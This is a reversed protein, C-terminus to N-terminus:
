NRINNIHHNWTLDNTITVGLYKAKNTSKLVQNHLTYQKSWLCIFLYVSFKGFCYAQNCHVVPQLKYVLFDTCNKVQINLNSTSSDCISTSLVGYPVGHWPVAWWYIYMLRGLRTLFGTQWYEWINELRFIDSILFYVFIFQHATGRCPTGYPVQRCAGTAKGPFFVQYPWFAM